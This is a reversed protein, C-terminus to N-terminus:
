RTLDYTASVGIKETSTRAGRAGATDSQDHEYSLTLRDPRISACGPGFFALAFLCIARILNRATMTVRASDVSRTWGPRAM